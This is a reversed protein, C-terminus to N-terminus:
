VHHQLVRSRNRSRQDAGSLVIGTVLAGLVGVTVDGLTDWWGTQIAPDLYADGYWEGLEWLISLGLGLATVLLWRPLSPSGQYPPRLFGVVALLHFGLASVLGTIVLHVVLDLWPYTVYLDLLSSWAAAPLVLGIALDLGEPVRLLRPLVLGLLVLAMLATAVFGLRVGAYGLGVAAALRALDAATRLASLRWRPDRGSATM